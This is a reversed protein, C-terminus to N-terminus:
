RIQNKLHISSTIKPRTQQASPSVSRNRVSTLEQTYYDPHRDFVDGPKYYPKM